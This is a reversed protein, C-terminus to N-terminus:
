GEVLVHLAACGLCICLLVGEADALTYTDMDEDCLPCVMDDEAIYVGTVTPCDDTHYAQGQWQRVHCYTCRM